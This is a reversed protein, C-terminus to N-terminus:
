DLLHKFTLQNSKGQNATTSYEWFGTPRGNVLNGEMRFHEPSAAFVWKWPGSPLTGDKDFFQWKGVMKGDKYNGKMAVKGNSHYFQALGNEFNDTFTLVEALQGNEYWMKYEGQLLNNIITAQFYPRGNDYYWKWNEASKSDYRVTMWPSNNEHYINEAIRKGDEYIKEWTQDTNPYSTLVTDQASVEVSISYFFCILLYKCSNKLAVHNM